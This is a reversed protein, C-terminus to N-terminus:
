RSSPASRRTCISASRRSRRLRRDHRLHRHGPHLDRHAGAQPHLPAAFLGRREVDGARVADGVGDRAREAGYNSVALVPCMGLVQVFVPNEKWLGKIFEDTSADQHSAAMVTSAEKPARRPQASSAHFGTTSRERRPHQRDGELLDDRRHHRRDALAPDENGHKVPVIPNPWRQHTRTRALRRAARLEGPLGSRNEIRDGLGPTEQSELVQIGIIAEDAFSYGYLVRIVDQYGMGQAEIPSGSSSSTTTTAPTSRPERRERGKVVSFGDPSTSAFRRARPPTPCCRSSRAGCRRPRTASSSRGRRRSSAGRHASRLAVGVGVM